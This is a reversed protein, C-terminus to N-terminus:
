KHPYIIDVSEDHCAGIPQCEKVTCGNDQNLAVLTFTVMSDNNSFAKPLDKLFARRTYSTRKSPRTSEHYIEGNDRDSVGLSSRHPICLTIAGDSVTQTIRVAKHLVNNFAKDQSAAVAHSDESYEMTVVEDTTPNIVWFIGGLKEAQFTKQPRMALIVVNDEATITEQMTENPTLEIHRHPIYGCVKHKILLDLEDQTLQTKLAKSIHAVYFDSTPGNKNIWENLPLLQNYETHTAARPHNDKSAAAQTASLCIGATILAYSFFHHIKKM